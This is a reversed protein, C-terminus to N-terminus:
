FNVAKEGAKGRTEPWLDAAGTLTAELTRSLFIKRGDATAPIQDTETVAMDRQSTGAARAALHVMRKLEKEAFQSAQVFDAFPPAGRVGEIVFGSKENPRIVVKKRIVINSTIAGIANAVDAHEPIIARAGM